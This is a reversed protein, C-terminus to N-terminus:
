CRRQAEQAAAVGCPASVQRYGFSNTAGDGRGVVHADQLRGDSAAVLADCEEASLFGDVLYVPPEAHVQRRAGPAATRTV